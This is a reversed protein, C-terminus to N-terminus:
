RIQSASTAGGRRDRFAKPGSAVLRLGGPGLEGKKWSFTPTHNGMMYWTGVETLALGDPVAALRKSWVCWGGALVGRPSQPEALLWVARRGTICASVALTSVYRDEPDVTSRAGSRFM